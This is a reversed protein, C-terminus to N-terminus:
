RIRELETALIGDDIDNGPAYVARMEEVEERTIDRQQYLPDRYTLSKNSRGKEKELSEFQENLKRERNTLAKYFGDSRNNNRGNELSDELQDREGEDADWQKTQYSEKGRGYDELATEENQARPQQRPRLGKRGSEEKADKRQQARQKQKLLDEEYQQYKAKMLEKNTFYGGQKNDSEENADQWKEQSKVFANSAGFQDRSNGFSRTLSREFQSYDKKSADYDHPRSHDDAVRFNNNLKNYIEKERQQYALHVTRKGASTAPNRQLNSYMTNTGGDLQENASENERENFRRKVIAKEHGSLAKSDAPEGSQQKYSLENKQARQKMENLTSRLEQLGHQYQNNELGGTENPSAEKRLDDKVKSDQAPSKEVNSTNFRDRTNGLSESPSKKNSNQM